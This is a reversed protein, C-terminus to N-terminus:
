SIPATWFQAKMTRISAMACGSSRTCSRTGHCIHLFIPPLLSPVYFIGSLFFLPSTVIKEVHRWSDWLSLIVANVIGFALGLLAIAAFAEMTRGPHAPM